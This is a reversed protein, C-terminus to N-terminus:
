RSSLDVESIEIAVVICHFHISSVANFNCYLLTVTSLGYLMSDDTKMPVIVQTCIKYNMYIQICKKSQCCFDWLCIDWFTLLSIVLPLSTSKETIWTFQGQNVVARNTLPSSIADSNNTQKINIVTMWFLKIFFLVFKDYIFHRFHNISFSRYYYYTRCPTEHSKVASQLARVTKTM